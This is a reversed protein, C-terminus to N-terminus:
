PVRFTADLSRPFRLVAAWEGNRSAQWVVDGHLLEAIQRPNLDRHFDFYRADSRETARSLSFSGPPPVWKTSFVLATDYAGPEQAAHEVQERDFDDIAVTKIPRRTYGLEPHQMEATAPWASLVTAEPFRHAIVAIASAHLLVFDRYTLNDEPAFSYPPNLFLGALFAVATLASLGYLARPGRSQWVAVCLLLVLPYMPLLYRTLLAGGLISFAFANGALVIGVAMWAPRLAALRAARARIGPMRLAAVTAVVPVYLNMHATLHVIRHWLSVAVRAASFNATANYRLFEPNGFVFGTAHFHYAYWGALPLVPVFLAALWGLRVRAQKGRAETVLLTFEWLGLVLPTVIATEKALAALSFLVGSAVAGRGSAGRVYRGFYYSLAWLTFAAAFLDAHAMTSQAFWVPYLATLLTVLAAVTSDMLQRGLRFAGLLAAAAIMALFTRTGSIALGGVHWWATLLVSPLPPHANTLTSQPILSGTRFFDLAAPVYYGAEDWFYPLRLLPWHSLYVAVFFLPYLIWLPLPKEVPAAM